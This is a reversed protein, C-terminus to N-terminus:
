RKRGKRHLAYGGYAAGGAAGVAVGRAALMKM